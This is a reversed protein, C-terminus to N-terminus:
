QAKPCPQLAQWVAYFIHDYRNKGHHTMAMECTRGISYYGAAEKDKIEALEPHTASNTLEPFHFGRDGAMGCCGANFPMVVEVALAKGVDEMCATLGLKTTACTPHLVISSLKHSITLAPLITEQLYSLGDVIKLANLKNKYPEPLKHKITNFQYTCSTFDSVIPIRGGESWQWLADITKEEAHKAANYFGKSSFAQGCCHGSLDKPLLVQLGAEQCLSLFVEQIGPLGNDSRGMMRHLCSSFYVVRPHEPTHHLPKPPKTIEPWWAPVDKSVWRFANVLRPMFNKGFITNAAHGTQLATRVVTEAAAFNKSIFLAVANQGKSHNEARLRKVLDGTNIQVPCDTQCLGDAACTDLGGYQYEKALQGYEDKKGVTALQRLHRRVQIRQRPTLTVNRSPCHHECFGCEICKDVEEEVAPLQKLNKIHALPDDNIIVGPNLLQLPDIVQKIRKMIAYAEAGWETQVFPAMNRGTGHEGKLSGKFQHVVVQVVQQMFKNYREIEKETDLHQTIVFHINGDKAHGFIIADQYGFQVFLNQLAAIAAGLHMVPFAVDELIVTTGSQRVAGVSPFMGKRIKWYFMREKESTTFNATHLLPLRNIVPGAKHLQEQLQQKGEAQFECLLAATADPLAMFFDPLGPLHAVSQLAKRDMLELAVAGSHILHPIADCAAAINPFYLMAASKHPLDPLTNLVAESIFGLTGEAGIMLHALIDLPHTFDILANLGYGVTNKIRYKERIAQLLEPNALVENHMTQLMSFIAPQEKEFCTYDATAATDYIKGDPLLFRISHLTHYSNQAVGCCMGSANNSLIGGMMAANISAPDPGIKKGWAALYHNAHAGIVGPQVKVLQGDQLVQCTSWHKSLDLLIGDTISQGSLSTGAARFVIPIRLRQALAFLAAVEAENVPQVVAKPMLHYFGADSAYAVRDILRMLVRDAPLIATLSTHLDQHM